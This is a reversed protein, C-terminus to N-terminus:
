MVDYLNGDCEGQMQRRKTNETRDNVM